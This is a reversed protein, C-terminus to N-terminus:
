AFWDDLSEDWGYGKIHEEADTIAQKDTYTDYSFIGDEVMKEITPLAEDPTAKAELITRVTQSVKKDKATKRPVQVGRHPNEGM